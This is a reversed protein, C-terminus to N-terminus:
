NQLVVIGFILYAEKGFSGAEKLLCFDQGSLKYGFLTIEFLDNNKPVQAQIEWPLWFVTSISLDAWESENKDIDFSKIKEVPCWHVSNKNGLTLEISTKKTEKLIATPNDSEM